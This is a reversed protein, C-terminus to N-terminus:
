PLLRTADRASKRLRGVLTSVLYPPAGDKPPVDVQDGGRLSASVSCDRTM